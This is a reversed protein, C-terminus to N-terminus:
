MGSGRGKVDIKPTDIKSGNYADPADVKTDADVKAADSDTMREQTVLVGDEGTGCDNVATLNDLHKLSM